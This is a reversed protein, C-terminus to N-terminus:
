VGPLAELRGFACFEFADELTLGHRFFRAGCVALRTQRREFGADRQQIEALTSVMHTQYTAWYPELKSAVLVQAKSYMNLSPALLQMGLSEKDEIELGVDYPADPAIYNAHINRVKRM